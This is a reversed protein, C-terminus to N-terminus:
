IKKNRLSKLANEWEKLNREEYDDKIRLIKKLATLEVKVKVKNELPSKDLVSNAYELFSVSQGM